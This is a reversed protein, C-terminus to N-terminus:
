AIGRLPMTPRAYGHAAVAVGGIIIHAVENENLFRLLPQLDLADPTM